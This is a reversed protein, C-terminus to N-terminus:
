AMRLHRLEQQLGAIAVGCKGLVGAADADCLRAAHGGHGGGGADRLLEAAREAAQDAVLDTHQTAHTNVCTNGQQKQRCRRGQKRQPCVHWSACLSMGQPCSHM